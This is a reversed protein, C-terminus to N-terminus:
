LGLFFCHFENVKALFLYTLFLVTCYFAYFYFTYLNKGSFLSINDFHELLDKSQFEEFYLFPVM